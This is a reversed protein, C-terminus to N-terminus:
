PTRPSFKFSNQLRISGSTFQVKDRSQSPSHNASDRPLSTPPIGVSDRLQSPPLGSTLDGKALHTTFTRSTLVIGRISRKTM